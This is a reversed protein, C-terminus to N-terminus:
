RKAILATLLEMLKGIGEFCIETVGEAIDAGSKGHRKM